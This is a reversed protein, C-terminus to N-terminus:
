PPPPLVAGKEFTHKRKINQWKGGFGHGKNWMHTYKYKSYKLQPLSLPWTQVPPKLGQGKGKPWPLGLGQPSLVTYCCRQVLRM